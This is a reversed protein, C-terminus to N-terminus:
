IQKEDAEIRDVAEQQCFTVIAHYVWWAIWEDVFGHLGSVGVAVGDKEEAVGGAYLYEGKEFKEPHLTITVSTPEGNRRATKCKTIALGHFTTPHIYEGWKPDWDSLKSTVKSQDGFFGHVPEKLGPGDVGVFIFRPGFAAEKVKIMAEISPGLFDLARKVLEETLIRGM